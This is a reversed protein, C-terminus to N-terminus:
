NVQKNTYQKILKDVADQYSIKGELCERLREKDEKLLPMGEMSMTANINNIIKDNKSM